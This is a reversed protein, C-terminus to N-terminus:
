GSAQSIRLQTLSCSTLWRSAHFTNFLTMHLYSPTILSYIYLSPMQQCCLLFHTLTTSDASGTKCESGREFRNYLVHSDPCFWAWIVHEKM